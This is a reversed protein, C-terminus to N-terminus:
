GLVYPLPFKPSSQYRDWVVLLEFLKVTSVESKFSCLNSASSIRNVAASQHVAENNDSEKEKFIGGLELPFIQLQLTLSASSSLDFFFDQGTWTATAPASAQQKLLMPAVIVPVEGGRWSRHSKFGGVFLQDTLSLSDSLAVICIVSVFCPM